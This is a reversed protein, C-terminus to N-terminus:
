RKKDQKKQFQQKRSSFPSKKKRPSKKTSIQRGPQQATTEKQIDKSKQPMEYSGSFPADAYEIQAEEREAMTFDPTYSELRTKLLDRMGPLHGAGVIILVLGQTSEAIQLANAVMVHNREEVLIHYLAPYEVQMIKLAEGILEQTPVKSIDKIDLRYRQQTYRPALLGIVMDKAAKFFLGFTLAHNLKKFTIRIDQDICFLPKHYQKARMVGEKMDSGPELRVIRGVRQQVWRAVTAFIAGRVGIARALAFFSPRRNDPSLLQEKRLPDLEVCVAALDPTNKILDHIEKVSDEAVHSTGVIILNGIREHM